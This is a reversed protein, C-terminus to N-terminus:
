KNAQIDPQNLYTGRIWSIGLRGGGSPHCVLATDDTYALVMIRGDTLEVWGSYGQDHGEVSAEVEIINDLQYQDPFEDSQASWSINHIGSLPDDVKADISRWISYGTVTPTINAGWVDTGVDMSNHDEWVEERENGFAFAYISIEAPTWPARRISRDTKDTELMLQDDIYLSIRGDKSQVRYTHFRGNAIKVKLSSDHAFEVHDSFIRLKGVFPISITAARGNNELVKVEATMDIMCNPSDPPRLFYQTFQGCIGDNDIHLEGNKLGLSRRNNFHAGAIQSTTPDDADGIWAWLAKRGICSRFTLFIRGDSLFGACTRGHISFPLEHVEWTKGNDKSYAKIGPCGDVRAERAYLLLRGDPLILISAESLSHPPYPQLFSLFEWTKGNDTSRFFELREGEMGEWAKGGPFWSGSLLWSGDDLETVRSPVVAHNGGVQSGYLFRQNVWTMGGDFSDYFVVAGTYLDGLLLFTGDRLKQIRPCNLASPHIMVPDSWTKGLDNSHRVFMGGGGGHGQGDNHTCVLTNPGTQVVDPFGMWIPPKRAVTVHRGPKRWVSRMSQFRFGANDHIARDRKTMPHPRVIEGDSWPKAQIVIDHIGGAMPYKKVHFSNVTPNTMPPANVGAFSVNEVLMFWDDDGQGSVWATMQNQKLDLKLKFDYTTNPRAYMAYYDLQGDFLWTALDSKGEPARGASHIGFSVVPIFTGDSEKGITIDQWGQPQGNVHPLPNTSGIDFSAYIYAVDSIEAIKTEHTVINSINEMIPVGM